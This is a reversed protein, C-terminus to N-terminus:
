GYGSDISRSGPDGRKYTTHFPNGTLRRAEAIIDLISYGTGSGLNFSDTPHGDNLAELAQVHARALDTVHIFDRVCTGDKTNYNNGYIHVHPRIEAATDLILPILHTEPNHNEGIDLDPDAGAANFYRLSISKIGYAADADALITEIMSKSRGYPNIPRQPHSETIPTEIPNGYVACTSSFVLKNVGIHKMAELVNLTGVVNNRYYLFPKKISEGVYASAAFHLVALPKYKGVIFKLKDLDLLEGIELVGWKVFEAHGMSLNDYVVVSYGNKSLEKCTHSGVFGAGGTVLVTRNVM